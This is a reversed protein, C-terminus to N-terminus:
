SSGHRTDPLLFQQFSEILTGLQAIDTTRAAHSTHPHYERLWVSGLRPLHQVDRAVQSVTDYGLEHVRCAAAVFSAVHFAARRERAGSPAAALTTADACPWSLARLGLAQRSSCVCAALSIDSSCRSM